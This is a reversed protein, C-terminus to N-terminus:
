VAGPPSPSALEPPPPSFKQGIRRITEVDGVSIVLKDVLDETSESAKGDKGEVKLTVAKVSLTNTMKCTPCEYLDLRFWEKAEPQVQGLKELHAFDKAEMRQTLEARDGAAVKGVGETEKCWSNCAECYPNGRFMVLGVLFALGLILVAEAAWFIWLATGTPTWSRLRWAGVENVKKILEWLVDPRLLIPLLDLQMKARRLLAYIWVAWSAYFAWLSAPVIIALAVGTNRVKGWMLTKSAVLGMLGGFIASLIFTIYGAIPIYLIVYAYAYALPFAVAASVLLAVAAGGTSFNGSHKYYLDTTM